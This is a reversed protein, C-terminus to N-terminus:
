DNKEKEQSSNNQSEQVEKTLLSLPYEPLEFGGLDKTVGNLFHYSILLYTRSRALGVDRYQKAAEPYCIAATATIGATVYIARKITGKRFALIYGALAGVGMAGMRPLLNNEQHLYERVMETSSGAHSLGTQVFQSCRDKVSKLAKAAKCGGHRVQQVSQFVLTKSGDNEEGIPVEKRTASPEPYIPLEMRAIKSNENKDPHIASATVL